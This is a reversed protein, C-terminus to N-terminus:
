CRGPGVTMHFSRSRTQRKLLPNDEYERFTRMITVLRDDELNRAALLSAEGKEVKTENYSIAGESYKEVKLIKAIM